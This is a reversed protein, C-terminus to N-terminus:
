RAGPRSADMTQLLTTITPMSAGGLPNCPDYNHCSFTPVYNRFHCILPVFGARLVEEKLLAVSAFNVFKNWALAEEDCASKTPAQRWTGDVSLKASKYCKLLRASIM